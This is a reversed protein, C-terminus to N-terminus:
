GRADGKQRQSGRADRLGLMRVRIMLKEIRVGPREKPIRQGSRALSRLHVEIRRSADKIAALPNAAEFSFGPIAPVTVQTSSKSMQTILIQYVGELM